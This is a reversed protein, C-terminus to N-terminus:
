YVYLFHAVASVKTVITLGALLAAALVMPLLWLKKRVKMFQWLEGVLSM